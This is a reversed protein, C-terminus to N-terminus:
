HAAEPHGYQKLKRYLTAVGIDLQEATRARNGGNQALVALIYQKEMDELRRPNGSPVLNPPAARVEEPLDEREVRQGECLAVAREVANGLERVNGPWDYRLLQDVAEPALAAVKRGLRESAEALLLRALPLIDERRERLPPIKLEIVRLRYYLDQRFRGLRVEEALERNTAAVVRVDVKRSTNEGVRRVEREQLARLLKAQMSAPVEGVEDLFLTGGHAAEFLGARDHTAGTFAGRAHGFLESELLSETVAACNVAVFANHARTSEDHILRAIREKGVGSEGTVLVTSDVKAARRALNIVRLMAESRAVMGAPDETVGARALSQRKARLKREAQKLADTVQALVGEMCQTEYFRLVETCETSWEEAPRGVFHCAADGQGVCRLETGYIPKGNVYSMYGSAFGTLSWCVPQDARGLHLLHQEAEYSDRWQAEAFPEPGEDPRREVREVRVQGQLTHLRGGARRWVSEDPWPVATKLAEATRWGHAYGLRTFIGRAATMGVLDILEKRLLGLAVPDMLVARQGAFHILGGGPEFSLLENLGLEFGGAV